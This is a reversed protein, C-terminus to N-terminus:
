VWYDAARTDTIGIYRNWRAWGAVKMNIYRRVFGGLNRFVTNIPRISEIARVIQQRNSFNWSLNETNEDLDAWVIFHPTPYYGNPINNLKNTTMDFDPTEWNGGGTTPLYTDTYYESIDGVLGFSYLMVRIANRTTKIKYWNPLNRVVFRLYKNLDEDTAAITGLEGRNLDVKYGLYRAFFNIYDIDILDPDHLETLRNVKELLSIYPSDGSSPYTYSITDGSTTTTETQTINLNEVFLDNLFNQFLELFDNVETQKLYDPLFDTLNIEKGIQTDDFRVASTYSM